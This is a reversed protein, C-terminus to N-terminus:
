AENYKHKVMFVRARECARVRACVTHIDTDCYTHIHTHMQKPTHTHANPTM